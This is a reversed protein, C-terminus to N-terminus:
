LFEVLIESTVAKGGNIPWDDLVLDYPCSSIVCILNMEAQLQVYGGPPAQPVADSLFKGNEDVRTNTFFNVPQPIVQIGYGMRMMAHQLNNACNEHNGQFGLQEYRFQDCAPIMMDHVGNAGDELLTLMPRRFRSLFVDGERPKTNRTFAWTMNPSLWEEVNEQNYAFFDAAQAGKPTAVRFIQGKKVRFARGERPPVFITEM